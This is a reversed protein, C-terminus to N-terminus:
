NNLKGNEIMLEGDMIEMRVHISPIGNFGWKNCKKEYRQIENGLCLSAISM